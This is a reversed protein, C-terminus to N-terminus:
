RLKLSARIDDIRWLGLSKDSYAGNGETCGETIIKLPQPLSFPAVQLNLVRWQGTAINQNATRGTFTTTLLYKSQSNCINELACFIDKFSLHVLCDRSFVLDVKPLKDSSLNRRQFSLGDRQYKETNKVVLDDVIDAGIYEVDRLDIIKMWHFDGCPIDLITSVGFEGIVTPLAKIIIRTQKIDSGTGSISEKGSWKNRKYIDTFVSETDRSNLKRRFSRKQLKSYVSPLFPFKRAIEKLQAILHKRKTLTKKMIM